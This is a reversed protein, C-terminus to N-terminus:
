IKFSIGPNAALSAVIVGDCFETHIKSKGQISYLSFAKYRLVGDNTLNTCVWLEPSRFCLDLEAVWPVLGDLISAKAADVLIRSLECGGEALPELINQGYRVARLGVEDDEM